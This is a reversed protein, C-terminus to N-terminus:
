IVTTFLLSYRENAYGKPMPGQVSYAWQNNLARTERPVAPDRSVRMIISVGLRFLLLLNDNAYGRPIPGQM